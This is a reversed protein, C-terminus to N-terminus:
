QRWAKVTFSHSSKCHVGFVYFNSIFYESLLMLIKQWRACVCQETLSLTRIQRLGCRIVKVKIPTILCCMIFSVAKKGLATRM